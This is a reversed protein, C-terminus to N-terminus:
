FCTGMQDVEPDDAKVSRGSATMPCAAGTSAGISMFMSIFNGDKDFRHIRNFYLDMVYVDGTDQDVALNSPYNTRGERTDIRKGFDYRFDLSLTGGDTTATATAPAAAIALMTAIAFVIRIAAPM